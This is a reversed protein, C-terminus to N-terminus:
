HDEISNVYNIYEDLKLLTAKSCDSCNSKLDDGFDTRMERTYLSWGVFELYSKYKGYYRQQQMNCVFEKPYTRVYDAIYSGLVESLAGDSQTIVQSILYFYFPRVHNNSTDLSDLMAFTEEDDYLKHEGQIYKKSTEDIGENELYHSVELGNILNNNTTGYQGCGYPETDSASMQGISKSCSLIAICAVITLHYFKM